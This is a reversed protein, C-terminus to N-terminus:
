ARELTVAFHWRSPGGLAVKDKAMGNAFSAILSEGAAILWEDLAAPIRKRVIAHLKDILAHATVLM